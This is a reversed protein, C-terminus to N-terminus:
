GKKEENVSFGATAEADRKTTRTGDVFVCVCVFFVFMCFIYVRFCM